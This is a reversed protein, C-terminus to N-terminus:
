GLPPLEGPGGRSLLVLAQDTRCRAAELAVRTPQELGVNLFNPVGLMTRDDAFAHYSLAQPLLPLCFIAGLTVVGLGLFGLVRVEFVASTLGHHPEKAAM